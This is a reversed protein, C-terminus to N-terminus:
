TSADRFRRVACHYNRAFHVTTNLTETIYEVIATGEPLHSALCKVGDRRFTCCKQSLTLIRKGSV